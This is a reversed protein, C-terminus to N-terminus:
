PQLSATATLHERAEPVGERLARHYFQLAKKADPEVGLVGWRKLMVPDYTQALTFSAQGNGARDLRALILRAGAIDGEGLMRAVRALMQRQDDAPIDPPPPTPVVTDSASHRPGVVNAPLPSPSRPETLTEDNPAVSATETAQQPRTDASAGTEPEAAAESSPPADSTVVGTSSQEQLRTGPVHEALENALSAETKENAIQSPEQARLNGYPSEVKTIATAEAQHLVRLALNLRGAIKAQTNKNRLQWGSWSGGIAALLSVSILFVWRKRRGPGQEPLSNHFGDSDNRM